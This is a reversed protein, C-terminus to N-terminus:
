RDEEESDDARTPDTPGAPDTPDTLATSDDPDIIDSLQTRDRVRFYAAGGFEGALRDAVKAGVRGIESFALDLHQGMFTPAPLVVEAHVKNWHHRLRVLGDAESLRRLTLDLQESRSVGEVIPASVFIRPPGDLVEVIHPLRGLAVLLVESWRPTIETLSVNFRQALYRRVQEIMPLDWRDLHGDVTVDSRAGSGDLLREVGSADVVSSTVLALDAIAAVLLGALEVARHRGFLVHPAGDSGRAGEDRGAAAIIVAPVELAGDSRAHVEVTGGSGSRRLRLTQGAGLRGLVQALTATSSEVHEM